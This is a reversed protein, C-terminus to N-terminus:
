VEKPLQSFITQTSDIIKAVKGDIVKVRRDVGAVRDDVCRTAKLVQTMAM